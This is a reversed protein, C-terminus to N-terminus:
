GQESKLLRFALGFRPYAIRSGLESFKQGSLSGSRRRYCRRTSEATARGDRRLVFHAGVSASQDQHLFLAGVAPHRPEGEWPFTFFPCPAVYFLSRSVLSAGALGTPPTQEPVEVCAPADITLSISTTLKGRFLNLLLHPMRANVHRQIDITVQERAEIIRRLQRRPAPAIRPLM